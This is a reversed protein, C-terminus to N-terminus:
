LPINTAFAVGTLLCGPIKRRAGRAYRNQASLITGSTHPITSHSGYTETMGKRVVRKRRKRSRQTTVERGGCTVIYGGRNMKNILDQDILHKAERNPPHRTCPADALGALSEVSTNRVLSHQANCDKAPSYKDHYNPEVTYSFFRKLMTVGIADADRRKLIMPKLWAVRIIRM